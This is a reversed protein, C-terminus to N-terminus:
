YRPPPPPNGNNGYGPMPQPQQQGQGPVPAENGTSYSYPEPARLPEIDRSRERRDRGRLGTESYNNNGEGPRITMDPQSENNDNPNNGNNDDTPPIEQEPPPADNVDESQMQGNQMASPDAKEGESLNRLNFSTFDDEKMPKAYALDFNKVPKGALYPSMFARWINAPLSGGTMGPMPANNDNGVWVGTVIDPTFGIFWADRYDDSTGTKGAVPRGINAAHGTGRAIVGEMMRVMTDVTTRNLVNVKVPHESYLSRSDEDVIGAIGYPEVRLGQNALVSFASSMELLNVGSGGLTLGLYPELPSRIGMQQALRVVTEAGLEHIVKVAIINNSTILARAVTMYGHHSRDYNQPQWNGMQLPEDLYVRTPEYGKDIAATYTFIKFLSGPSRTADSVRDFQSEQYNKGGVYALIAGSQADLSILAAQQNVRTRGAALSQNYVAQEALRQAHLDLTTRIKLGSQWFSQEDLNLYRMVRSMIYRNFFPARDSASLTRGSPNLHIGQQQLTRMQEATIKGVEKLNALVENRRARAKRLNQYPSYGSPAQPLGALLAAEARSLKSPSKGFYIESAAQIGYAGEGFYTNNVYLELIQQKTLKEEIQMALAAERLKRSFSRENNLFVNRALQQTLTSGGERIKKHTVDSVIARVVAVPDVGRHTYFRRDETAILADIFYPSVNELRVSQHRFRGFSLIPTGDSAFVQTWRTPNVGDHLTKEVSPLGQTVSYFYAFMAMCGMVVLTFLTRLLKAM